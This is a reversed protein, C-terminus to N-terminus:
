KEAIGFAIYKWNTPCVKNFFMNDLTALFSRQNENRGLTGLFGTTKIEASSYSKLFQGIQHVSLYEWYDKWETFSKRLFQHM